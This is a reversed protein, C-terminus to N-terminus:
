RGGPPLIVDISKESSAKSAALKEFVDMRRRSKRKVRVFAVIHVCNRVREDYLVFKQRIHSSNIVFKETSNCVRAIKLLTTDWQFYASRTIKRLKLSWSFAFRRKRLDNDFHSVLSVLFELAVSVTFKSYQICRRPDLRREYKKKRQFKLDGKRSVRVLIFMQVVIKYFQDFSVSIGVAPSFYMFSCPLGTTQTSGSSDDFIRSIVIIAFYWKYVRKYQTVYFQVISCVLM